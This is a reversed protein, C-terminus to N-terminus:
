VQQAKRWAALRDEVTERQGYMMTPDNSNLGVGMGMPDASQMNPDNQMTQVNPNISPPQAYNNNFTTADMEGDNLNNINSSSSGDSGGRFQNSVISDIM